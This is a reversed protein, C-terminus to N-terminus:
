AQNDLSIVPCGKFRVFQCMNALMGLLPLSTWEPQGM